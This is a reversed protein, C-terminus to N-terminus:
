TGEELGLRYGIGRVTHVLPPLGESDIAKRLAYIHSRLVSGEPSFGDWLVSEIQERTVVNPAALMLERLIRLGARNLHVARGAREVRLIGQDFALDHVELVESGKRPARRALAGLRMLLEASEFPKVLYDDAGAGFGELKDELTDRATLMLVLPATGRARRIERCVELGDLRPLGLDLVIVEHQGTLALSLGSRGDGAVDVAHGARELQENLNASLTHNDEVLLIRM